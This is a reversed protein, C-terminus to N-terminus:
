ASLYNAMQPIICFHHLSVTLSLLQGFVIPNYNCHSVSPHDEESKDKQWRRVSWTKAMTRQSYIASCNHWLASVTRPGIINFSLRTSELYICLHIQWPKTNHFIVKCFLATIFLHHLCRFIDKSCFMVGSFGWISGVDLSYKCFFLHKTQLYHRTPVWHCIKFVCQFFINQHLM